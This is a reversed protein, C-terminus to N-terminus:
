PDEKHHAELHRRNYMYSYYAKKCPPCWMWYSYRHPHDKCTLLKLRQTILNLRHHRATKTM